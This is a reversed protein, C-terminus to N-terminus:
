DVGLYEELCLGSEYVKTALDVGLYRVHWPEYQYGTVGEKGEPYRIIFGYEHSHQALWQGAGTDAFQLDVWGVDFALGTQHESHGPWASYTDAKAVGDEEVYKNYLKDQTEFSRFGSMLPMSYGAQRAGEQLKLLAEYAAEDEGDGYSRPLAYEKNVLLVGDIYTPEVTDYYTYSKGSPSVPGQTQEVITDIHKGGVWDTPQPTSEVVEKQPEVIREQKKWQTVDMSCGSITLMIGLSGWLALMKQVSNRVSLGGTACGNRKLCQNDYVRKEEMDIIVM